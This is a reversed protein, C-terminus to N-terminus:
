VSPAALMARVEADQTAALATRAADARVGPHRAGIRIVAAAAEVRDAKVTSHLALRLLPDLVRPSGVAGMAMLVRPRSESPVEYVARVLAELVAETGLGELAGVIEVVEADTASTLRAVFAPVVGLAIAERLPSFSLLRIFLRKASLPDLRDAAARLRTATALDALEREKCEDRLWVEFAETLLARALADPPAQLLAEVAAMPSNARSRESFEFGGGPAFRRLRALSSRARASESGVAESSIEQREAGLQALPSLSRVHDAPTPLADDFAHEPEEEDAASLAAACYAALPASSPLSAGAELAEVVGKADRLAVAGAARTRRFLGFLRTAEVDRLELAAHHKFAAVVQAESVGLQKALPKTLAAGQATKARWTKARPAGELASMAAEEARQLDKM